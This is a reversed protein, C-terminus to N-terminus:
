ETVNFRMEQDTIKVLSICRLYNNSPLHQRRHVTCSQNCNCKKIPIIQLPVCAQPLEYPWKYMINTVLASQKAAWGPSMVPMGNAALLFSSYFEKMVGCREKNSNSVYWMLYQNIFRRM